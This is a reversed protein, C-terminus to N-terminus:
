RWRKPIYQDTFVDIAYSDTMGALYDCVAVKKNDNVYLYKKLVM